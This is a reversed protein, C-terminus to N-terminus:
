FLRDGHTECVNKMIIASLVLVIMPTTVMIVSSSIPSTPKIRSLLCTLLSGLSHRLMRPFDNLSNKGKAYFFGLFGSCFCLALKGLLIFGYADIYQPM